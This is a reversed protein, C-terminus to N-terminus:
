LKKKIKRYINLSPVSRQQFYWKGDKKILGSPSADPAPKKINLQSRLWKAKKGNM